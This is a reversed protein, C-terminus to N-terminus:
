VFPARQQLKVLPHFRPPVLAEHGLTCPPSKKSFVEAGFGYQCMPDSCMCSVLFGRVWSTPIRLRVEVHIIVGALRLMSDAENTFVRWWSM